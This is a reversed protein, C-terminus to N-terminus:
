PSGRTPGNMVKEIIAAPIRFGALFGVLYSPAAPAAFGTPLTRLRVSTPGIAVRVYQSQGMISQLDQNLLPIGGLSSHLALPETLSVQGLGTQGVDVVWQDYGWVALDNTILTYQGAGAMDSAGMLKANTLVLANQAPVDETLIIQQTGGSYAIAGFRFLPLVEARPMGAYFGDAQRFVDSAIRKLAADIVHQPLLIGGAGRPANGGGGFGLPTM